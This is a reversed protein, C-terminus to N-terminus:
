RLGVIKHTQLSLRWHPHKLIYESCKAILKGNKAENGTDCPQLFFYKATIHRAWFEPNHEGNFIVKVEDARGLISEESNNYDDKPSFTVFDVGNPIPRTGNTEIAIEAFKTHLRELLEETVQLTPEGGTLVVLEPMEAPCVGQAKEVIEGATMMWKEKFNTDCFPCALNCGSFRIFVAARGTNYGEGQLSYFIENIAYKKM